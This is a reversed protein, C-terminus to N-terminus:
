FVYFSLKGRKEIFLFTIKKDIRANPKIANVNKMSQSKM